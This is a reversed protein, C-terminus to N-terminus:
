SRMRDIEELLASLLHERVEENKIAIKGRTWLFAFFNHRPLQYGMLPSLTKLIDEETKGLRQLHLTLYVLLPEKVANYIFQEMVETIRTLDGGTERSVEQVHRKWCPAESSPNFEESSFGGMSYMVYVTLAISVWEIYPLFTVNTALFPRVLNLYASALFGIFFNRAPDESVRRLLLSAAPNKMDSSSELLSTFSLVILGGAIPVSVFVLLQPVGSLVEASHDTVYKLSLLFLVSSILAVLKSKKGLM